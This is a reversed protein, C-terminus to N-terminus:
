NTKPPPMTVAKEDSLIRRIPESEAPKGPVLATKLADDRRDIRLNAKRAASDAGHCPFCNEALIPRVDRNYHIPEAALASAPLLAAFVAFTLLRPNFKM